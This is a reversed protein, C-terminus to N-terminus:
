QPEAAGLFTAKPPPGVGKKRLGVLMKTKRGGLGPAKSGLCTTPFGQEEENTHEGIKSGVM